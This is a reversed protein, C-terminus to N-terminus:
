RLWLRRSAEFAVDPSRVDVEWVGSAVHGLRAEYAGSGEQVFVLVRDRHADSPHRLVGLIQLGEVPSGARSRIDLRVRVMGGDTRSAGIAAQWGMAKQQARRALTQNYNIGQLYEDSDSEGRFTSAAEGRFTSIAQAIMYGNVAFVVGFSAVFIALTKRGTLPRM